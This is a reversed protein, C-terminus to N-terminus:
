PIERIGGEGIEELRKYKEHFELFSFKDITESFASYFFSTPM